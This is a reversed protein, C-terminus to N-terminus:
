PEGGFRSRWITTFKERAARRRSRVTNVPIKLLEAAERPSCEEIDCLVLVDRHRSNLGNLVERIRDLEESVVANREPTMVPLPAAVRIDRLLWRKAERVRRWRRHQAVVRVAIGRLWAGPNRVEEVETIRRFAVIFARQTIDEVEGPEVGFRCVLRYVRDFHQDYLLRWAAEREASRESRLLAGLTDSSASTAANSSDVERSTVEAVSM